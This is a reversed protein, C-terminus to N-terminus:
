LLPTKEIVVACYYILKGCGGGVILENDKGREAFAASQQTAKATTGGNASVLLVVPSRDRM